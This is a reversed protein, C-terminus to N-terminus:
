HHIASMSSLSASSSAGGYATATTKPPCPGEALTGDDFEPKLDDPPDGCVTQKKGWFCQCTKPNQLKIRFHWHNGPCPKHPRSPPVKHWGEFQVWPQPCPPCKKKSCQCRVLFGKPVKMKTCNVMQRGQAFCHTKCRALTAGTCAVLGSPDTGGSLVHYAAYLNMGDPYMELPESIFKDRQIFTSNSSAGATSALRLSQNFGPTGSPDRQLFRGTGPDYMASAEATALLSILCTIAIAFKHLSLRM